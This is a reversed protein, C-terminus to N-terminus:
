LGPCCKLRVLRISVPFRFSKIKSDNHVNTNVCKTSRYMGTIATERELGFSKRSNTILSLPCQICQDGSRFHTQNGAGSLWQCDFQSLAAEAM